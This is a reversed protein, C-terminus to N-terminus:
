WQYSFHIFFVKYINRKSTEAMARTLGSDLHIFMFSYIAVLVLIVGAGLLLLLCRHGVRWLGPWCCIWSHLSSSENSCVHRWLYKTGRQIIWQGSTTKMGEENGAEDENLSIRKRCKDIRPSTPSWWSQNSFEEDVGEYSRMYFRCGNCLGCSKFFVSYPKM